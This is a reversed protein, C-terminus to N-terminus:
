RGTSVSICIIYMINIVTNIIIYNLSLLIQISFFILFPICLAFFIRIKNILIYNPPTVLFVKKKVSTPETMKGEKLQFM